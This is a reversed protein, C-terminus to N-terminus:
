WIEFRNRLCKKQSSAEIAELSTKGRKASMSYRKRTIPDGHIKTIWSNRHFEPLFGHFNASQIVLCFEVSNTCKESSQALTKFNWTERLDAITHLSEHLDTSFHQFIVGQDCVAANMGGLVLKPLPWLFAGAGASMAPDACFGVARVFVGEASALSAGRRDAREIQCGSLENFDADAITKM